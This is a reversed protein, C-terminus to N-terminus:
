FEASMVRPGLPQASEGQPELTIGLARYKQRDAPMPMIWTSAGGEPKFTGGSTRQNDADIWWCQYVQEGELEPLGVIWLAAQTGAYILVGKASGGATATDLAIMRADPQQVITLLQERRESPADVQNQLSLGWLGFAVALVTALAAAAWGFRARREIRRPAAPRRGLSALVRSKLGAPPDILPVSACLGDSVAEYGSLAASHHPCTHLHRVVDAMESPRLVGLAYEPLLEELEECNLMRINM